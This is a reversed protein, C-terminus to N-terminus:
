RHKPVNYIDEDAEWTWNPGTQGLGYLWFFHIPRDFTDVAHPVASPLYLASGASVPHAAEAVQIVAEGDLVYYIEPPQHHHLSYHVNPVFRCTGAAVDPAGRKPDLLYRVTLRM